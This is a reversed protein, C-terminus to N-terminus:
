VMTIDMCILNMLLQQTILLLILLLLMWRAYAADVDAQGIGDEPTISAAGDSYGTDYGANPDCVVSAVGDAYAADVDAQTVGDDGCNELINEIQAELLAIQSAANAQVEAVAADLDSQSM